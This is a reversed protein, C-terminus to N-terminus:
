QNNLEELRDRVDEWVEKWLQSHPHWLGQSENINEVAGQEWFRVAEEYSNLGGACLFDVASEIAAERATPYVVGGYTKDTM